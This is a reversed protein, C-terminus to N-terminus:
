VEWKPNAGDVRRNESKTKARTVGDEMQAWGFGNHHPNSFNVSLSHPILNM